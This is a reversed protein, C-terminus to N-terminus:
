REPTFGALRLGVLHHSHPEWQAEITLQVKSGDFSSGGRQISWDIAQGQAPASAAAALVWAAAALSVNRM